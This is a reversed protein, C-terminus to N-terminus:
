HRAACVLMAPHRAACVLMAPHQAACVLTTPHRHRHAACVLMAPRRAACVLMAPHRATCDVWSTFHATACDVRLREFHSVNGALPIATGVSSALRYIFLLYVSTLSALSRGKQILLDTESEDDILLTPLAPSIIGSTSPVLGQPGGLLLIELHRLPGLVM